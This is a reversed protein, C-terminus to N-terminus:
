NACIFDTLEYEEKAAAVFDAMIRTRKEAVERGLPTKLTEKLYLLKDHFHQIASISKSNYSYLPEGAMAAYASVRFIGMAGIADLRDADQVCHYELCSDHWQSWNNTNRLKKEISYGTNEVIKAVLESRDISMGHNRMLGRLAALRETRDSDHMVYKHDVVDHFLAGLEVVLLDINAPHERAIRLAMRRVRNIHHMDHSTDNDAMYSAVLTEADNILEYDQESSTYPEPTQSPPTLIM